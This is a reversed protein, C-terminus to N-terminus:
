GKFIVLHPWKFFELHDRCLIPNLSGSGFSQKLFPLLAKLTITYTGKILKYLSLSSCIKFKKEEKKANQTLFHGPYPVPDLNM